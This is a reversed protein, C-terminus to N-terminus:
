RWTRAWLFFLIPGGIYLVCAVIGFWLGSKAKGKGGVTPDAANVLGLIGLLVAVPGLLSGVCPIMAVAGLVYAVGAVPNDKKKPKRDKDTGRRFLRDGPDEYDTQYDPRPRAKTKAM